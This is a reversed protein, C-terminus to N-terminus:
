PAARSCGPKSKTLRTKDAPYTGSVMILTTYNSLNIRGFYSIDAKTVPMGIRQDLLHWVEGAEYGSVGSGVVM